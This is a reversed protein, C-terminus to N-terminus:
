RQKASGEARATPYTQALRALVDDTVYHEEGPKHGFEVTFTSSARSYTYGDPGCRYAPSYYYPRRWPGGCFGDYYQRDINVDNDRQTVRFTSHGNAKALEAARMLAMDNTLNLMQTRQPESGAYPTFATRRPAIYTVRYSNNSLQQESYGFNATSSLPSYLPESPGTSCGALLMAVAIGAISWWRWGAVRTIPHARECYSLSLSAM